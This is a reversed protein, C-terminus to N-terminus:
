GIREESKGSAAGAERLEVPLQKDHAAAMDAAMLARGQRGDLRESRGRVLPDRLGVPQVRSSM